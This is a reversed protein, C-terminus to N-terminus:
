PQILENTVVVRGAVGLTPSHYPYVGAVPFRRSRCNVAGVPMGPDQAEGFADINGAGGVDGFGCSIAADRELVNTPDDFVIDVPQGSINPWVVAGGARITVESPSFQIQPPAGPRTTAPKIWTVGYVPLTLTFPLTDALQVGYATASAIVDFRGVNQYFLIAGLGPISEVHGIKPDSSRISIALGPIPAGSADLSSVTLAKFPPLSLGFSGDGALYMNSGDGGLPWLASDGPAVDISLTTLVPPVTVNTANVVVTDSYRRNGAALEAVVRIDEAVEHARVLGDATVEVRPDPSRFTAAGLGELAAGRRDRPTATLRITDYPAVTSLTVAEHDLTLGWYSETADSGTVPEYPDPSTDGCGAMALSVAACCLARGMRASTLRLSELIERM